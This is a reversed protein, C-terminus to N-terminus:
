LFVFHPLNHPYTRVFKTVKRGTRNLLGTTHIRSDTRSYFLVGLDLGYMVLLFIM